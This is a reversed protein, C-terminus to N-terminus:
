SNVGNVVVVVVVVVVVADVIVIVISLVKNKSTVHLSILVFGIELLLTIDINFQVM